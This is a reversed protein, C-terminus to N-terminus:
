SRKGVVARGWQGTLHFSSLILAAFSFSLPFILVLLVFLGVLPAIFLLAGIAVVAAGQLGFLLLMLLSNLWLAFVTDLNETLDQMRDPINFFEVVDTTQAFWALASSFLANAVLTYSVLLIGVCCLFILLVENGGLWSVLATMAAFFLLPAAYILLAITLYLGQELDKGYRDWPPLQERNRLARRTVRVGYGLLIAWGVVPVFLLMTAVLLTNFWNDAAFPYQLAAMINM